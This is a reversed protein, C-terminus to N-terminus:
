ATLDRDEKPSPLYRPSLKNDSVTVTAKKTLLLLLVWAMM